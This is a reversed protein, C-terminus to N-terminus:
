SRSGGTDGDARFTVVRYLYVAVMLLLVANSVPNLYEAVRHHQSQLLYGLSAFLASGLVTPLFSYFLFVGLPMAAIGAPISILTRVGPILRGFLVAARGHRAFWAEAADVDRPSLTFWRGYRACLCRLRQIGFRRGLAYWPLFGVVSGSAAVLVVAVINFKGQAASFGVLPLIVESPIPPFVNELVMLAFVGVYGGREIVALTWDFM